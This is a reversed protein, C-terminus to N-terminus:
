ARLRSRGQRRETMEFGRCGMQIVGSVGCGLRGVDQSYWLTIQQM